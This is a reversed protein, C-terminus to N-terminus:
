SNCIICKKDFKKPVYNKKMISKSSYMLCAMVFLAFFGVYVNLSAFTYFVFCCLYAIVMQSVFLKIAFVRGLECKACKLAPICPSYFLVFVLFSLAQISSLNGLGGVLGMSSIINEKAVLGSILSIIIGTNDLGIPKFIVAFKSVIIELISDEGRMFNFNVDINLLLWMISSVFWVVGIVKKLFDLAILLAEKISKKISPFKLRPLECIFYSNENTKSTFKTYGIGILIAILYLALVYVLGAQKYLLSSVMLFIPLKASCGIFPFLRITALKSNRNEINRTTLIASTTCGLGMILSFISKGDLGIKQLGSNFLYAVRPLYGVEELIYFLSLMLTLQPIFVIITGVAGVVVRFFYDGLVSLGADNLKTQVIQSIFFIPKEVLKSMGSGIPGYSVYGVLLLVGIFILKGLVPNLLLRDLTQLYNYKSPFSKLLISLDIPKVIKPETKVTLFKIIDRKNRRVDTIFFQIGLQKSTQEVQKNTISSDSKNIIVKINKFNNKLLEVLLILNKGISASSCIFIIEANPNLELYGKTVNEDEGSTKLSYLGPLDVVEVEENGCKIVKSKADVTVGSWNATKENCGTITNFLSTKGTNPNGVILLKRM